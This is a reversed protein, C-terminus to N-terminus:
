TADDAEDKDALITLRDHLQLERRQILMGVAHLLVRAGNGIVTERQPEEGDREFQVVLVDPETRTRAPM